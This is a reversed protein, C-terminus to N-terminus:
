WEYGLDEALRFLSVFVIVETMFMRATAEEGAAMAREAAARLDRVLPIAAAAENIALMHHPSREASIARISSLVEQANLGRFFDRLELQPRPRSYSALLDALWRKDRHEIILELM